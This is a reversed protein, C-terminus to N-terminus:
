FTTSECQSLRKLLYKFQYEEKQYAAVEATNSLDDTARSDSNGRTGRPKSPSGLSLNLKERTRNIEDDVQSTRNKLYSTLQKTEAERLSHTLDRQKHQLEQPSLVQPPRYSGSLAREKTSKRGNPNSSHKLRVM